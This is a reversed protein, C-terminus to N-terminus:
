VLKSRKETVKRGRTLIHALPDAAEHTARIQDARAHLYNSATITVSSHGLMLSAHYLDQEAMATAALHRLSHLTIRPLAHGQGRAFKLYRQFQHGWSERHLQTGFESVFLFGSPSAQPRVRLWDTLMQALPVGVPVARPRGSKSQTVTLTKQELSYDQLRLGFTESIRLGTSVQVGVIAQDRRSFFTRATANRFRSLPNQTASWHQPIAALIIGVEAHDPMYVSARSSRPIKWDYLRESPLYSQKHAFKLAAKIVIAQNRITRESLKRDLLTLLYDEAHKTLIQGVLTIGQAICWTEWPQLSGKYMRLTTDRIGAIRRARLYEEHLQALPVDEQPRTLSRKTRAKKQPVSAARQPASQAEHPPASQGEQSAKQSPKDSTEDETKDLASIVM